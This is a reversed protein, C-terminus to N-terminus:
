SCLSHAYTTMLLSRRYLCFLRCDITSVLRCEIYLFLLFCEVSFVCMCACVCVCACMRSARSDSVFNRRPMLLIRMIKENGNVIFYGGMEQQTHATLQHRRTYTHSFAHSM